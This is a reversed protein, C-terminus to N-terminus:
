DDFSRQGEPEGHIWLEGERTYTMYDQRSGHRNKASVWELTTPDIEDGDIRWIGAEDQRAYERERYLMFIADADQEIQGSARIDSKIPRKDEREEVKRSLQVAALIPMKFDKKLTNLEKSFMTVDAYESYKPRSPEFLQSYDVVLLEPKFRIIDQRLTATGQEGGENIIINDHRLAEVAVKLNEKQRENYRGKTYDNFDIGALKCALRMGYQEASMEPSALLVRKGQLAVNYAVQGCVVSKMSGPRGGVYYLNKPQLGGCGEDLPKIGTELGVVGENFFRRDIEGLMDDVYFSLPQAGAHFRDRGLAFVGELLEDFANTADGAMAKMNVSKQVRLIMRCKYMDELKTIKREVWKGSIPPITMDNILERLTQRAQSTKDIAGQVDGWEINATGNERVVESMAVFIKKYHPHVIHEPTLESIAETVIEEKTFSSGGGKLCATILEREDSLANPKELESM